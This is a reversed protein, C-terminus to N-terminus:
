GRMRDTIIRGITDTPGGAAAGVVVTIPRTPYSQAKATGPVIPLVAAGAALRLIQRRPFQTMRRGQPRRALASHSEFIHELGGLARGSGQFLSTRCTGTPLERRAYRPARRRPLPLPVVRLLSSASLPMEARM